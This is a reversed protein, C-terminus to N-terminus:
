RWRGSRCRRRRASAVSRSTAAASLRLRTRRAGAASGSQVTSGPRSGIVVNRSILVTQCGIPTHPDARRSRRRSCTSSTTPLTPATPRGAPPRRSGSSRRTTPTRASGSGSSGCRSARAARRRLKQVLRDLSMSGPDDNAGDTMLIVSNSYAPDYDKLAQRYAALTTDYLGTGGNTLALMEEAKSDLLDRQSVGDVTADLRRMPELERWDQGPGGQDISFVWLGIRARDPFVQLATKAVNVALQM